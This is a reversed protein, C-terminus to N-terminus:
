QQNAQRRSQQRTQQRAPRLTANDERSHKCNVVFLNQLPKRPTPALQRFSTRQPPRASPPM